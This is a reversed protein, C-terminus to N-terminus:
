VFLSLILFVNWFCHLPNDHRWEVQRRFLAAQLMGCKELSIRRHDAEAGVGGKDFDLRIRTLYLERPIDSGLVDSSDNIRLNDFRLHLATDHLSYGVAKELLEDVIFVTLLQGAREFIVLEGGCGIYRRDLYMM